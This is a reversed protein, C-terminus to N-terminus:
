SRSFGYPPAGWHPHTTTFHGVLSLTILVAILLWSYHLGLNVGLIRGLRIQAEM